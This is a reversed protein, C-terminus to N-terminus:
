IYEQEMLINTESKYILTKSTNNIICVNEYHQQKRARKYIICNIQEERKPGSDSEM